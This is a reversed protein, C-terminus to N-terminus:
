VKDTMKHAEIRDVVDGKEVESQISARREPSLAVDKSVSFWKESKGGEVFLYDVEEFTLNNTEPYCFWVLPIFAFNTCMFLLYAQWNLRELLTPTIMVVFFNWLRAFTLVCRM